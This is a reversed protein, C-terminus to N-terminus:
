ALSKCFSQLVAASADRAKMLVVGSVLEVDVKVDDLFGDGVGYV